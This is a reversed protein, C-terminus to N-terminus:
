VPLYKNLIKGNNFATSSELKLQKQENFITLGKGIAVPCVLIFYEDILNQSILSNVFEAGGYVLIDKGPQNKLAKVVTALDGNEVEANRGKTTAETRSFVIKRMNVILQALSKQPSDTQSDATNEWFEFFGKTMKRGMLLTDSSDALEILKQFGVEDGGSLFIWDSEGNPGAVFGDITMQIQLKLKRM